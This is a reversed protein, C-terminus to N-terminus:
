STPVSVVALAPVLGLGAFSARVQEAPVPRGLLYGQVQNCGQERLVALQEYTEVGEAVVQMGLAHALAIQATVFTTGGGDLDSVFSRDIKLEDFAYDRLRGLSSHGTGFDDIALWVGLDKLRRVTDSVVAADAQIIGETMELTLCGPDLDYARLSRRVASILQPGLQRGSLNVAVVLTREGVHASQWIKLERCAQDLVWEGIAVIAGTQEALDLFRDPSLLGHVPHRWRLLAEAGAFAGNHLRVIPQYFVELEGNDLASGLDNELELRALSAAHASGSFTDFGAGGRSKTRYMALDANRLLAEGTEATPGAAAIGISAGVTLTRGPLHVPDRLSDLLRQAVKEPVGRVDATTIVGFEDGGLRALFDTSRLSGAFRGAVARLMEDGVSHGLGDNVAKFGDLDVYLVACCSSSAETMRQALEHLFADRNPLCTLSDHFAQHALDATREAVRADLSDALRLHDHIIVVYRTMVACLLAAGIWATPNSASLSPRTVAFTALALVVPVFPMSEQVLNLRTGDPQIEAPRPTSAALGILLFPVVWGAALLSGAAFTEAAVERVYVTDTAALCVFGISLLLWPLRRGPTARMAQVLVVSAILIDAIPYALSVLQVLWSGEPLGHLLPDLVLLWSVTFIALSIVVGDLLIRTRPFHRTGARALSSLGIVAPLAYGVFGVDALSPSPAYRQVVLEYYGWVVAGACWVAASVALWCWGAREAPRRWAAWACAAAGFGSSLLYAVDTVVRDARASFDGLVLWACFAVGFITVTVASARFGTRARTM